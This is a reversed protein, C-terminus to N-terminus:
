PHAVAHVRLLARTAVGVACFNMTPRRNFWGCSCRWAVLGARRRDSGVLRRAAVAGGGDGVRDSWRHLQRYRFATNLRSRASPDVAFLRIQNLVNVIQIAAQFLVTGILILVISSAGLVVAIVLAVLALVLAAPTAPRSWGRDHLQGARQAAVTGALGALGVLRNADGFLLVAGFEAPFDTGDLVHHLSCVIASGIRSHSTRIATGDCWRLCPASCNAYSVAPRAPMGPTIALLVLALVTAVLAATVYIARWGFADALLGSIMRSVVIGTLTGSAVTGVVRGRQEDTALDGAMPLLLQGTVTSMGTLGLAVLLMNFSPAIACAASPWPQCRWSPPLLRRRNLTDGLPVILFIGIAYGVQTVTVLLGAVSTSVGFSDGIYKLLPQAWYLNGVAAGAAIAFLWTMSRSMGPPSIHKNQRTM